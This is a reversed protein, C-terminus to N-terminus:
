HVNTILSRLLIFIIALTGTLIPDNNIEDLTYNQQIENIVKAWQELGYYIAILQVHKGTTFSNSKYKLFKTSSSSKGTAVAILM